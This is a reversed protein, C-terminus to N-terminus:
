HKKRRDSHRPMLFWINFLSLLVGLAIVLSEYQQLTSWVDTSVINHAVGGPLLPVALLGAAAGAAIAPGVNIFLKSAPVSKRMFVVTFFAPAFLLALQVTSASNSGSTPLFSNFINTADISVFRALVSGACLALFVVAANARSVIILAIPLGVILSILVLPTM